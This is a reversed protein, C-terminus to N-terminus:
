KSMYNLASNGKTDTITAVISPLTGQFYPHPLGNIDTLDNGQYNAYQVHKYYTSVYHADIETHYTGFHTRNGTRISATMAAFNGNKSKMVGVLYTSNKQRQRNQMNGKFNTSTLNVIRNDDRMSNAHDIVEPESGTHLYYAIRHALIMTSNNTIKHRLSIQIYGEGHNKVYVKKTKTNTIFGTVSDYSLNSTDFDSILKPM